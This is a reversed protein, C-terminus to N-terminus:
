VGSLTYDHEQVILGEADFRLHWITLASIRKGDSPRTASWRTFLVASDEGHVISTPEIHLDSMDERVQRLAAQLEPAGGSRGGPIERWDVEQAFLPYVPSGPENYVRVFREVADKVQM